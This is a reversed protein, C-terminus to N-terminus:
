QCTSTKSEPLLSFDSLKVQAIPINWHEVSRRRSPVPCVSTHQYESTGQLLSDLPLMSAQYRLDMGLPNYLALFMNGTDPEQWFKIVLANERHTSESAVKSTISKGHSELSLCITDGPRLYVTGNSFADSRSNECAPVPEKAVRSFVQTALAESDSTAAGFLTFSLLAILM